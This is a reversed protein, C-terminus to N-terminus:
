RGRRARAPPWRCGTSPSSSGRRRLLTLAVCTVIITQSNISPPAHHRAPCRPVGRGWGVGGLDVVALAGLADSRHICNFALPHPRTGDRRPSNPYDHTSLQLANQALIESPTDKRVLAPEDRAARPDKLPSRVPSLMAHREPSRNSRAKKIGRTACLATGFFFQWRYELRPFASSAVPLVKSGQAFPPPQCSQTSNGLLRCRVMPGCPFRQGVHFFRRSLLLWSM